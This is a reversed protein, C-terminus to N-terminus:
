GVGYRAMLLGVVVLALVLSVSKWFLVPNREVLAPRTKSLYAQNPHHLDHVFESLSEYRKLPDPQLARNLVSDIWAPTERDDALVSDYRLRRQAATTRSKSVETGYPLRGGSLMQYTIVALSFMDSRVDGEQGLFYEPATYQATGLIESRGLPTSMEAIGAVRTAGFDIIKVTGTRDIMINEPRLDQHLMELRHFAQLGKAVQAVIGRAVM